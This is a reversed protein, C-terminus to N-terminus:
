PRHPVSSTGVAGSRCGTAPWCSRDGSRWVGFGERIVDDPTPLLFRKHEPLIVTSLLYWAGIFLLFVVGPGALDSLKTRNKEEPVIDEPRPQLTVDSM